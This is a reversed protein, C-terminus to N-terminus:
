LRDRFERFWETAVWLMIGIMVWAANTGLTYDKFFSPTDGTLIRWLVYGTTGAYAIWGLVILIAGTLRLM